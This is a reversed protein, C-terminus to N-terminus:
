KGQTSIACLSFLEDLAYNVCCLPPFRLKSLGACLNLYRLTHTRHQEDLDKVVLETRESIVLGKSKLKQLLNYLNHRIDAKKLEHVSVGRKLLAAKLFLEASHSVLFYYPVALLPKLPVKDKDLKISKELKKACIWFNQGSSYFSVALPINDELSSQESYKARINTM